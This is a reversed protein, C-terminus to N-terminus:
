NKIFVCHKQGKNWRYVSILFHNMRNKSLYGFAYKIVDHINYLIIM